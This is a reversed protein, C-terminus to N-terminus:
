KDAELKALAACAAEFEVRLRFGIASPEGATCSRWWAMAAKVVAKEARTLLALEATMVEAARMDAKVACAVCKCDVAHLGRALVRAKPM